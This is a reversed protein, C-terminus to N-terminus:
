RRLTLALGVTGPALWPAGALRPPRARRRDVVLLVAGTALLAAGVGLVVYGPPRYNRLYVYSWARSPPLPPLSVLVTGTLVAAGGLGLVAVGSWGLPGFRRRTDSAPTVPQPPPEVASEKAAAEAEAARAAEAEARQAELADHHREIAELVAEIALGALEVDSCANCSALLRGRPDAGPDAVTVDGHVLSVRVGRQVTMPDIEVFTVRVSAEGLGADELARTVNTTVDAVMRAPMTGVEDADVLVQGPAGAVAAAPWPPGALGVGLVLALGRRRMTM